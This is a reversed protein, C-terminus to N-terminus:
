PEETTEPELDLFCTCITVGPERHLCSITHVNQSRRRKM